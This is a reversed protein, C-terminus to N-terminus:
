EKENSKNKLSITNASFSKIRMAGKEPELYFKTFAQKPFFIETMVNKGSDFFVEVSAADLILTANHTKATDIRPATSIKHTFKESFDIRGAQSRDVYFERGDNKFGIVLKEGLENELIAQYGRLSDIEYTIIASSLNVKSSDSLLTKGSIELDKKAFEKEKYQHIENVPEFILRLDGGYDILKMERAITMASRWSTTPVEQAYLWNSMWGLFLKRGDEDPINSWTVGAYNDKGFDLWYDHQEGMKQKFNADVKFNKGDFDGIFYQTASGENPGGPNISVLLVWKEEGNGNIKMPFLDPCEWVGNHNGIGEGFRSLEKWEKLNQSGYFIIEQGAALTMVWQKSAMDWSVKPDRFDKLGSSPIVPNGEYKTFTQGDDLSYAIAQSQYNSKGAREGDMDHYTFIAVVPTKGNKAFGSTNNVDVVASGSFIYGLSDPYIAIPQEKWKVMDNSTAHGWHMPGWVNDDPYHQFYLHYTGDKYFMGNPDNMWNSQPSFHFKPRYDEDNQIASSGTEREGIKKESENKCSQLIGLTFITCILLLYNKM